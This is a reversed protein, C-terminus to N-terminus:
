KRRWFWRSKKKMAKEGDADKSEMVEQSLGKNGRGGRLKQWISKKKIEKEGEADKSEKVERSVGKNGRGGREKRVVAGKVKKGLRKQVIISERGPERLSSMRRKGKPALVTHAPALPTAPNAGPIHFIGAAPVGVQDVFASFPVPTPGSITEKRIPTSVTPRPPDPRDLAPNGIVRFSRPLPKEEISSKFNPTVPRDLTPHGIVRFSRPVPEEEIVSKSIRCGM